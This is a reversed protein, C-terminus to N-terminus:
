KRPAVYLSFDEMKCTNEKDFSGILTPKFLIRKIGKEVEYLKFKMLIENKDNKTALVELEHGDKNDDIYSVKAPKGSTVNLIPAM